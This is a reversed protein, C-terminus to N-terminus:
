AECNGQLAGCVAQLGEISHIYTSHKQGIVNSAPVVNGYVTATWRLDKPLTVSVKVIAPEPPSFQLLSVQIVDDNMYVHWNPLTHHSVGAKLNDFTSNPHIRVRDSETCAQFTTPQAQTQTVQESKGDDPQSPCGHSTVQRCANTIDLLPATTTCSQRRSTREYNKVKYFQHRSGCKRKPM